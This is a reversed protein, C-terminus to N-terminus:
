RAGGTAFLLPQREDAPKGKRSPVAAVTGSEAAACRAVGVSAWHPDADCGLYRRRGESLAVEGMRFSGGFLDAVVAGPRSSARVVDRLMEVPKECPHKRPDPRVTEYEWVDTTPVGRAVAFPRRRAEYEARASEQAGRMSAHAALLGAFEDAGVGCATAIRAFDEASPVCTGEEWRCTIGTGRSPDASRVRGIAVDLAAQSLGAATRRETIWRAFPLGDVSPTPVNAAPLHEAFIVRETQPFYARQAEKEQKEHWGERKVWVVHNLVEFRDGLITEVRGAMEASAWVYVSGDPALIRRWEDALDAVWALFNRAGRWARDWAEDKVRFYPPDLWLLDVCGAPMAAAFDEARAHAVCWPANGALVDAPTAHASM